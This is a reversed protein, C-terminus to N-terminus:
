HKGMYSPEIKLIEAKLAPDDKFTPDLMLFDLKATRAGATQKLAARRAELGALTDKAEPRGRLSAIKAEVNKLLKAREFPDNFGKGDGLTLTLVGVARGLGGAPVLLNGSGTQLTIVNRAEGAVFILDVADGLAQSLQQAEKPGATSLLVKLEVKGDLATLAARASELAPASSLNPQQKLKEPSLGVFGVRVGEHEVVASADFPAQGDERLNASLVRIGHQEANVKLWRTGYNLDKGGAAMVKVGFQGMTKLLLQARELPVHDNLGQEQFLANGVDFLLYPGNKKLKELASKRRALGGMPLFNCGCPSIEGDTDGTFVLELTPPSAALLAAALLGTM